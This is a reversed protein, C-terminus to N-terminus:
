RRRTRVSWLAFLVVLMSLVALGWDVNLTPIPTNPSPPPVVVASV